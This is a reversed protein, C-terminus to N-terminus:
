KGNYIGGLEKGCNECVYRGKFATIGDHGGCFICSGAIRKVLLDGNDCVTIDVKEKGQIGLDRRLASPITLSGSKGIKKEM